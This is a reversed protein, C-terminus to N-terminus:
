SGTPQVNASFMLYLRLVMSGSSTSRIIEKGKGCIMCSSARENLGQEVQQHRRAKVARYVGYGGAVALGGSAAGVLCGLAGIAGGAGISQAAAFASSAAVNGISGQMAAALSGQLRVSKLM